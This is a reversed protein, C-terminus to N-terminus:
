EEVVDSMIKVKYALRERRLLQELALELFAEEDLGLALAIEVIRRPRPVRRGSELDCLNASSIKLLAAFESLTAGERERVERLTKGVSALGSGKPHDTLSRTLRRKGARRAM